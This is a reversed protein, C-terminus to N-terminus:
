VSHPSAFCLWNFTSASRERLQRNVNLLRRENGVHSDLDTQLVEVQRRLTAADSAPPAMAGKDRLRPDVAILPTKQVLPSWLRVPSGPTSPGCKVDSNWSPKAPLKPLSQQTSGQGTGIHFGINPNLPSRPTSLNHLSCPTFHGDESTSESQVCSVSPRLFAANVKIPATSKEFQIGLTGSATRRYESRDLM